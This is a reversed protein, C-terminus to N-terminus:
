IFALQVFPLSILGAHIVARRSVGASDRGIQGLRRPDDQLQGGEASASATTKKLKVINLCRTNAAVSSCLFFSLFCSFPILSLFFLLVGKKESYCRVNM